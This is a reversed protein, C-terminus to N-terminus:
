QEWRIRQGTRLAEGHREVVREGLETRWMFRLRVREKWGRKGGRHLAYVLRVDDERVGRQVLEHALGKM